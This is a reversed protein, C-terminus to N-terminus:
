YGLRNIKLEVSYDGATITSIDWELRQITGGQQLHFISITFLMCILTGAFITTTVRKYNTDLQEDSAICSYQVFFFAEDSTCTAPV